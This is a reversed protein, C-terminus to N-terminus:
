AGRRITVAYHEGCESTYNAELQDCTRMLSAADEPRTEHIAYASLGTRFITDEVAKALGYDPKRKRRSM